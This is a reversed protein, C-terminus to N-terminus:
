AMDGLYMTRWAGAAARAAIVPLQDRLYVPIMRLEGVKELPVWEVGSHTPDPVSGGLESPESVVECWFLADVRHNRDDGIPGEEHSAPIHERLILLQGARVTVGTEELVEREVTRHLPEGLKQGGGPPLWTDPQPWTGRVLLVHGGRVVLGTAATRIRNM